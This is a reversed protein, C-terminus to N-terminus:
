PTFQFVVETQRVLGLEDRAVQEVARPDTKALDVRVRLQSIEFGLRSVESALKAQERKLNALRELGAGSFVQIPVSVSAVLLVSLPLLGGLVRRGPPGKVALQDVSRSVNRLM